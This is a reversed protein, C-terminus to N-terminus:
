ICRARLLKHMYWLWCVTFISRAISYWGWGDDQITTGEKSRTRDCISGEAKDNAVFTRQYGWIVFDKFQIAPAEVAICLFWM